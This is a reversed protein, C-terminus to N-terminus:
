QPALTRAIAVLMEDRHADLLRDHNANFNRLALALLAPADAAPIGCDHLDTRWGLAQFDREVHAAVQEALDAGAEPLRLDLAEGLERTVDPVCTGLARIMAPAFAAYGRPQTMGEYHNFVAVASAYAARALLHCSWPRGGDEEDRNQLLGAACMDILAADSGEGGLGPYAQRALQWAHRRSAQALPNVTRVTGMCMLGWWYIEFSTSRALTLPATALAGSDWFVARPRTKPDFFELHHAEGKYRVASGGRNQASTPSTLVNFIPMKPSELRRSQAPANEPHVTAMELLPRNEGLLMAVVRAGKIVSGAGVAILADAEIERAKAAAEEISEAPAGESIGSFIGAVRGGALTEIRRTLDTRQHVSRGCLILARSAGVRLLERSLEALANDGAHVRLPYNRAHFNHTTSKDQHM